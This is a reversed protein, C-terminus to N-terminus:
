SFNTWTEDKWIKKMSQCNNTRFTIQIQVPFCWQIQAVMPSMQRPLCIKRENRPWSSHHLPAGKWNKLKASPAHKGNGLKKAPAAANWIRRSGRCTWRAIRVTWHWLTTRPPCSCTRVRRRGRTCCRSFWTRTRRTLIKIVVLRRVVKLVGLPTRSMAAITRMQRMRWWMWRILTGITIAIRVRIKIRYNSNIRITWACTRLYRINSNSCKQQLSM